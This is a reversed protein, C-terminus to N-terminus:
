HFLIIFPEDRVVCSIKSKSDESSACRFRTISCKNSKRKYLFLQM